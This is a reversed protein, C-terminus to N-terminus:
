FGPESYDEVKKYLASGAEGFEPCVHIYEPLNNRDKEGGEGCIFYHGSKEPLLSKLINRLKINEEELTM